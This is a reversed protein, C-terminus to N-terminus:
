PKKWMVISERSRTTKYLKAQQPSNGRRRMTIIKYPALGADKGVTSLIEDVMVNVGSYRVNSVVFAVKGGRKLYKKANVLTLYMDEFYGSLMETIQSNNVGNRKIKGIAISLSRPAVFNSESHQERAEVHSRITRRRLDKIEKNKPTFGFALELLYTRTYDHRNPYPPSTIIADFTKKTEFFRSDGVMAIGTSRKKNMNKVDGVLDDLKKFFLSEALKPSTEREKLRLFAGAKQTKSSDGLISFFATMLLNRYKEDRITGIGRKLSYLYDLTAQDYAKPVTVIDTGPFKEIKIKKNKIWNAYKLAKKHDYKELKSNSLFVAFPMVDVGLAEIGMDQCTLLTTGSGCFIDLVKSGKELGMEEIINSVLENSYGHKYPYWNYVPRNKDSGPSVARRLDTREENISLRPQFM